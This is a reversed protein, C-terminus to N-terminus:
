YQAPDSSEMFSRLSYVNLEIGAAGQEVKKRYLEVQEQINENLRDLEEDSLEFLASLRFLRRRFERPIDAGVKYDLSHSFMAWIHQLFTRVQIEAKLSRFPSWDTLACRNVNINVILHLSRYGFQNVNLEAEKDISRQNDVAFEGEIIEAVKRIDSLRRLIIRVGALDTIEALPDEYSHRIIKERFSDEEKTRFEIDYRIQSPRLLDEILDTIKETFRNYTPYLERYQAVVQDIDM